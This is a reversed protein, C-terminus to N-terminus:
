YHWGSDASSEPTGALGAEFEQLYVGVSMAALHLTAAQFVAVGSGMHPTTPVGARDATGLQRLGDSLGTQGMGPQFVDLSRPPEM